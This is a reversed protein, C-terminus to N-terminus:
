RKFINSFKKLKDESVDDPRDFCLQLHHWSQEHMISKLYVYFVAEPYQEDGLKVFDRGRYNARKTQPIAVGRSIEDPVGKIEFFEVHHSGGMDTWMKMYPKKVSDIVIFTTRM